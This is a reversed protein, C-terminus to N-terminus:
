RWSGKYVQGCVRMYLPNSSHINRTDHNSGLRRFLVDATLRICLDTSGLVSTCKETVTSVKACICGVYIERRNRSRSPKRPRTNVQMRLRQGALFLSTFSDRKRRGPPGYLQSVDLRGCKWCLWSVSPPTTILRVRRGGKVCFCIRSSMETPPQTSGFIGTRNFLNPWNFLQFVEDTFSGEVKRSTAYQRFWIFYNGFHLPKFFEGVVTM